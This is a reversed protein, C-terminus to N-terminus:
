QRPAEWVYSCIQDYVITIVEVVKTVCIGFSVRRLFSILLEKIFIYVSSHSYEAFLLKHKEKINIKFTFQM